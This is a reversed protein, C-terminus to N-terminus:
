RQGGPDGVSESLLAGMRAVASWEAGEVDTKIFRAKQMEEPLFIHDLPAAAIFMDGPALRRGIWYTFHPERVGFYYIYQQIIDNTNGAIKSGIGDCRCVPALALRLPPRCGQDM